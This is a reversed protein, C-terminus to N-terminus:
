SYYKKYLLIFEDGMIRTLASVTGFYVILQATLM